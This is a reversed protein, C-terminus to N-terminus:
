KVTLTGEMGAQRHGPVSCFFTYKGAKLEATVESAGGKEVTPGEENVGGGELAVNHPVPAPNNMTIAVTGATAELATKDFALKGSPDASLQLTQSAGGPPASQGKEGSEQGGETEPAPTSGPEESSGEKGSKNAVGSVEEGKPEEEGSTGIATGIAGVVLIASIAIVVKEGAGKGPFDHRMIGLAALIVAWLALLGGVIEFAGFDSSALVLVAPL